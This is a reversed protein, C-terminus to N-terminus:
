ATVGASEVLQHALWAVGCWEWQSGGRSEFCALVDLLNLMAADSPASLQVADDYGEGGRLTVSISGCERDHQVTASITEGSFREGHYHAITASAVVISPDKADPAWPTVKLDEEYGDWDSILLERLEM